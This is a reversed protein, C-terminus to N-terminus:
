SPSRCCVEFSVEVADAKARNLLKDVLAKIEDRSYM